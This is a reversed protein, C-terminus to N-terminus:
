ILSDEHEENFKLIARRFRDTKEKSEIGCVELVIKTKEDGGIILENMYFSLQTTAWRDYKIEYTEDDVNFVTRKPEVKYDIDGFRDIEIEITGKVKKPTFKSKFYIM